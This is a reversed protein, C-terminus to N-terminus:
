FDASKRLRKESAVTAGPKRRRNKYRDSGALQQIRLGSAEYGTAILREQVPAVIEKVNPPKLGRRDADNYVESITKHIMSDPVPRLEHKTERAAESRLRRRTDITVAEEGRESQKQGTRPPWVALVGKVNFRLDSWFKGKLETRFCACIREQWHHPITRNTLTLHPWYHAPLPAPNGDWRLRGTARVRGAELSALLQLLADVVSSNAVSKGAAIKDQLDADSEGATIKDQLAQLDDDFIPFNDWRPDYELVKRDRYLIWWLVQYMTLFPTHFTPLLGPSQSYRDMKQMQRPEVLQNIRFARASANNLQSRNPKM